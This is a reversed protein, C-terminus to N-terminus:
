WFAASKQESGDSNFEAIFLAIDGRKFRRDGRRSIRHSKIIGQDSWRRVTNIHIHLLRAVEGVTLMPEIQRTDVMDEERIFNGEAKPHEQKYSTVLEKTKVKIWNKEDPDEDVLQSSLSSQYFIACKFCYGEQCLIPKYVCPQGKHYELYM